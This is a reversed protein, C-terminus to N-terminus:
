QLFPRLNPAVQQFRSRGFTTFTSYTRSPSRLAMSRAQEAAVCRGPFLAQRWEGGSIAVNM